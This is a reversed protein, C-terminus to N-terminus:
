CTRKAQPCARNQAAATGRLGAGILGIRLTEDVGAHVTRPIALSGVLSAGAALGASSKLFGRRTTNSNADWM